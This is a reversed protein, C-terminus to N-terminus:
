RQLDQSSGLAMVVYRPSQSAKKEDDQGWISTPWHSWCICEENVPSALFAFVSGVSGQEMHVVGGVPQWSGSKGYSTPMESGRDQGQSGTGKEEDFAVTRSVEGFGDWKVVGLLYALHSGLRCPLCSFRAVTVDLHVAM